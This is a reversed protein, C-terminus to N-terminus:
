TFRFQSRTNMGTPIPSLQNPTCGIRTNTADATAITGSAPNIPSAVSARPSDSPGLGRPAKNFAVRPLAGSIM